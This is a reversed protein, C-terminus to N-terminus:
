EEARIKAAAVGAAAKIVAHALDQPGDNAALSECVKACRVRETAILALAFDHVKTGPTAGMVTHPGHMRWLEAIEDDTM